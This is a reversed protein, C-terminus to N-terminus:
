YDQITMVECKVLVNISENIFPREKIWSKKTKTVSSRRGVKFIKSLAIMCYLCINVHHCIEVDLNEGQSAFVNDCRSAAPKLVAM